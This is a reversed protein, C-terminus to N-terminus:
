QRAGRNHEWVSTHAHFGMVQTVLVLTSDLNASGANRIGHRALFQALQDFFRDSPHVHFYLADLNSREIRDAFSQCLVERKVFYFRSDFLHIDEAILTKSRFLRELHRLLYQHGDRGSEQNFM